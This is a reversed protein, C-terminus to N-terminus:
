AGLTNHETRQIIDEQLDYSLETFYASYGAVRVLLSRYLEPTKRAKLLTERNIINFQLHATQFHQEPSEAMLCHLYLRESRFMQHSHFM